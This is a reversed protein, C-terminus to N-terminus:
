MIWWCSFYKYLGLLKVSHLSHVYPGLWNQWYKAPSDHHIMAVHVPLPTLSEEITMHTTHSHLPRKAKRTYQMYACPLLGVLHMCTASPAEGNSYRSLRQQKMLLKIKRSYLCLINNHIDRKTRNSAYSWCRDQRGCILNESYQCFNFIHKYTRRVRLCSVFSHINIMVIILSFGVYDYGYFHIWYDNLFLAFAITKNAKKTINSWLINLLKYFM